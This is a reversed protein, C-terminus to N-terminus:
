EHRLNPRCKLCYIRRYNLCLNYKLKWMFSVKDWNKTELRHDLRDQGDPGSPSRGSLLRSDVHSLRSDVTSLGCNLTWLQSDVTSLGCNLTWLQSDLTSLGCNLTWLQSDLTSVFYRCKFSCFSRSGLHRRKACSFLLCVMYAWLIGKYPPMTSGKTTKFTSVKDWSKPPLYDKM